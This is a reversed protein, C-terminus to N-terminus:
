TTHLIGKTKNRTNKKQISKHKGKMNSGNDYGQCILDSIDLEFSKSVDLLESFLREESTDGM